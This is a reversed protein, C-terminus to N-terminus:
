PRHLIGDLPGGILPIESSLSLHGLLTVGNLDIDGARNQGGSM